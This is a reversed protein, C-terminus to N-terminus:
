FVNLDPRLCIYVCISKQQSLPGPRVCIPLASGLTRDTAQDGTWRGAYCLRMVVWMPDIGQLDNEPNSIFNMVNNGCGVPLLLFPSLVKILGKAEAILNRM